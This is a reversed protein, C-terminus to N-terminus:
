FPIAETPYEPLGYMRRWSAEQELLRQEEVFDPLRFGEGLEREALAGVDTENLLEVDINELCWPKPGPMAWWVAKALTDVQRRGRLSHRHNIADFASPDDRRNPGGWAEVIRWNYDLFKNLADTKTRYCVKERPPPTKRWWGERWGSLPPNERDGALVLGRADLAVTTVASGDPLRVIARGHGDRRAQQLARILQSVTIM